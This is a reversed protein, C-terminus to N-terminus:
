SDMEIIAIKLKGGAPRELTAKEEVDVRPESEMEQRVVRRMQEAHDPTWTRDPIVRVILHDVTRQVIQFQHCGGVRRIGLTIGMISKRRGAPLHLLPQRRGEVKTWLPLGRGCPCPGAALTVDDLIDYRLLPTIFNHLSTFVLRGTEGPKCPRDNADLVEALINEAHVHLGHGAPCPSAGYGAETSSYTNKLSAGFGAEIREHQDASLSEGVSQIARLTPLREGSERVLGALFDLNSPLSILYDPGIKRLWALQRRPDQRVDMAFAPGSELLMGCLQSWAPFSVGELARPLDAANMALLRITAVRGRPDLGCWELDRLFFANWWLADHNTKLVKIPVGNTGSTFGGGAAVMGDPLARTQLDAFHTQYLERTLLPLRRYDDLTRISAASMCSDALLKRYYPVQEACHAVLTRLQRLQGDEIDAPSLWQTRNLERYTAWVPAIDPTPLAPWAATPLSRLRFFDM